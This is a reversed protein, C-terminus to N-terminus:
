RMFAVHSLLKWHTMNDNFCLIEIILIFNIQYFFTM